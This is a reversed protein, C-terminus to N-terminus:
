AHSMAGKGQTKSGMAAVRAKMDKMVPSESSGSYASQRSSISTKKAKAKTAKDRRSRLDNQVQKLSFGKELYRAALAPKGHNACVSVIQAAEARSVSDGEDDAFDDGEGEADSEEDEADQEDGDEGVANEDDTEAEASEDDEEGEVSEDDQDEIIEDDQDEVNENDTPTAEAAQRISKRRFMADGEISNANSGAAPGSAKGAPDGSVQSGAGTKSLLYDVVEDFSAIGDALGREVAAAADFCDAETEVAAQEAIGRNRAVTSTFIKYTRDISAQAGARAEDSLASHPWFDIKRAGAFVPTFKVGAKENLKSQDTHVCVVGVSGVGGTRPTYIEDCASAIAYAASYASENAFAIIPKSGRAAFIKDVLDFCGSVEGGGSDIDLLIGEIAPDAMAETFMEEIVDYSTMGSYGCYGGRQVLTGHVPIIAVAPENSDFEQGASSLFDDEASGMIEGPVDCGLRPIVVDLVSKLKRPHIMLPQDFLREAVYPLALAKNQKKVPM